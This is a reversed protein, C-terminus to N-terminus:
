RSPHEEDALGDMLTTDWLELDETVQPDAAMAKYGEIM